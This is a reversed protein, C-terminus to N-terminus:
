VPFEDDVIWEIPVGEFSPFSLRLKEARAATEGRIILRGGAFEVTKENFFLGAFRDAIGATDHPGNLAEVAEALSAKRQGDVFFTKTEPARRDERRVERTLRPFERCTYGYVYMGCAGYGHLHEQWNAKSIDDLTIM